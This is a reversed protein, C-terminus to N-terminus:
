LTGDIPLASALSNDLVREKGKICVIKSLSILYQIFQQHLRIPIIDEAVVGAPHM